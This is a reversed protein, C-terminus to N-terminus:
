LGGLMFGFTRTHRSVSGRFIHSAPGQYARAIAEENGPGGYVNCNDADDACWLICPGVTLPWQLGGSADAPADAVHEIAGARVATFRDDTLPVELVEALLLTTLASRM